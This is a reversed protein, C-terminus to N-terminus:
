CTPLNLFVYQIVVKFVGTDKLIHKYLCKNMIEERGPMAKETIFLFDVPRKTM